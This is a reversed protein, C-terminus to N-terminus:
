VKAKSREIKTKTRKAIAEEDWIGAKVSPHEVVVKAWRDFNPAKAALDVLLSEPLLGYKPLSYLRLIFSGTM